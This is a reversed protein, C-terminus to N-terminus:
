MTIFGKSFEQNPHAVGQPGAYDLDDCDDGDHDEQDDCDNGGHDLDDCNNGDHDNIMRIMMITAMM